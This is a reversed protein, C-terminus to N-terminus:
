EGDKDGIMRRGGKTIEVHIGDARDILSVLGAQILGNLAESFTEYGMITVFTGYLDSKTLSTRDRIVKLVSAMQETIKEKNMSGFVELMNAELDTVWKDALELDEAEILLSGTRAVALVIATKHIHTQKRAFYGGFRTDARLPNDSKYHKEYWQTGWRVAEPTMQVEGELLAFKTLDDVLKEGLDNHSNPLRQSPYAVLQRKHEAYIFLTRSAFGGGIFHSTFNEAIWSPTTCGILNLWPNEIVEDGGGKTKKRFPDDRGDWLDTLANLMAQDGPQLLTGLESAIVTLACMPFFQGDDTAYDERSEAMATILAQWTVASPGFKIGPVRRLLSMGIDATTSKSVIGPPAVFCLFFNPFWRFYGMDIRVRRRLAGAIVSIGTWRHFAEPAESFQTYEQYADLWNAFHRV